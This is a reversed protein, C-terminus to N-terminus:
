AVVIGIRQQVQVETFVWANQRPFIGCYPGPWLQGLQSSKSVRERMAFQKEVCFTQKMKYVTM